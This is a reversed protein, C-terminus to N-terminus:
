QLHRSIAAASRRPLRGDPRLDPLIAVPPRFIEVSRRRGAMVANFSRKTLRPDRGPPKRSLRMPEFCGDM